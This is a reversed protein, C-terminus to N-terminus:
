TFEIRFEGNSMVILHSMSRSYVESMRTCVTKGKLLGVDPGFLEEAIVMNDITVPNNKIMNTKTIAKLDNVTGCGLMHLLERTCKAREKQGPTYYTENEKVTNIHSPAMMTPIALTIRARPKPKCQYIGDKPVFAIDKDAFLEGHVIFKDKFENHTVWKKKRTEHFSLINTIAREDFWVEGYYPLTAVRNVVLIGGNTKLHLTKNAPCMDRVLSKDCFISASSENDPLVVKVLSDKGSQYMNVQVGCYGKEKLQKM